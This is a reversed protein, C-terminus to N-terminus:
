GQAAIARTSHGAHSATVSRARLCLMAVFHLSRDFIWSAPGPYLHLRSNWHQVELGITEFADTWQAHSWYNYPLRVGHRANGVWDMARLTPRALVGERVHDKIIIGARAVRASERLLVAPDDTHHLVDVLLVADISADAYPLHAGDFQRVPIAADARLLVDVGEIAVDSRMSRLRAALRGDGCGVDLVRGGPPLLPAVHRALVAVRRAHVYSGHLHDLLSM